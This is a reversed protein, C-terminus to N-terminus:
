PQERPASSASLDGADASTQSRAVRMAFTGVAGLVAVTIGFLVLVAARVGDATAGDDSQFCIPCAYLIEQASGAAIATIAVAIRTRRLASTSPAFQSLHRMSPPIM